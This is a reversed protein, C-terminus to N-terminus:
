DRLIANFLGSEVVSELLEAVLRSRTVCRVSAEVDLRMATAPNLSLSYRDVVRGPVHKRNRKARRVPERLELVTM